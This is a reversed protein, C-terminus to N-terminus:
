EERSSYGHSARTKSPQTPNGFASRVYLESKADGTVCTTSSVTSSCGCQAVDLCMEGPVVHLAVDLGEDVGAQMADCGGSAVADRARHAMCDMSVAGIFDDM